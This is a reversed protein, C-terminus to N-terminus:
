VSDPYCVHYDQYSIISSSFRRKKPNLCAHPASASPLSVGGGRRTTIPLAAVCQRLLLVLKQSRCMANRLQLRAQQLGFGRACMTFEITRQWGGGGGERGALEGARESLVLGDQETPLMELEFRRSHAAVHPSGPVFAHGEVRDPSCM